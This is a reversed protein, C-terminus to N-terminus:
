IGIPAQDIEETVSFVFPVAFSVQMAERFITICLSVKEKM